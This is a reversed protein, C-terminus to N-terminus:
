ENNSEEVQYLSMGRSVRPVHLTTSSVIYQAAYNIKM